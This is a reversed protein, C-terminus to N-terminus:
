YYKKEPTFISAFLHINCGPVIISKPVDQSSINDTCVAL